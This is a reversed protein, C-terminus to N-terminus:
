PWGPLAPLEELAKLMANLVSSQEGRLGGDLYGQLHKPPLTRAPGPRLLHDGFTVEAPRGAPQAGTPGIRHTPHVGAISGM